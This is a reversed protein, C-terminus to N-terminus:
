TKKLSGCNGWHSGRNLHALNNVVEMIGAEDILKWASSWGHGGIRIEYVSSTMRLMTLGESGEDLDNSLNVEFGKALCSLIDTMALYQKDAPIGFYIKGNKDEETLAENISLGLFEMKNDMLLGMM